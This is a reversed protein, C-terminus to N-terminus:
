GFGLSRSLGHTVVSDDLNVGITGAFAVGAGTAPAHQQTVFPLFFLQETALVAGGIVAHLQHRHYLAQLQQFARAANHHVGVRLVHLFANGLPYVAPFGTAPFGGALFRNFIGVQPLLQVGQTIAVRM